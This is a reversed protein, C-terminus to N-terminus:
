GLWELIAESSAARGEEFVLSHDARPLEKITCLQTYEPHKDLVKYRFEHNFDPTENDIECLLFLIPKSGRMLQQFADWFHWNFRLHDPTSKQTFGDLFHQLRRNAKRVGSALTGRILRLDSQGKLLRLYSQVRILKRLYGRMAVGADLDRVEGSDSYLVPMALLILGTVMEPKRACALAATVAGDCQGWLYIESTSLERKTWRLVALTDRVCAGAEVLNFYQDITVGSSIEGGSDGTGIQDFRVVHFGRASLIDGLWRFYDGVGGKSQLGTQCFVVARRRPPEEVPATVVAYMPQGERNPIIVECRTIGQSM